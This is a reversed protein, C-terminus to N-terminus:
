VTRYQGVSDEGEYICDELPEAGVEVDLEPEPEAAGEAVVLWRDAPARVREVVFQSEM